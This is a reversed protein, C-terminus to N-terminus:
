LFVLLWMTNQIQPSAQPTLHKPIYSNVFFNWVTFLVFYFGKKWGMERELGIVLVYHPSGTYFSAILDAAIVMAPAGKEFIASEAVSTQQQKSENQGCLLSWM